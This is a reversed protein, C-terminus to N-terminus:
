PNRFWPKTASLRISASTETLEISPAPSKFTRVGLGQEGGRFGISLCSSTLLSCTKLDIRPYRCTNGEQISGSMLSVCSIPTSLSLVPMFEKGALLLTHNIRKPLNVWLLFHYSLQFLDPKSSIICGLYKDPKSTQAEPNCSIEEMVAAGQGLRHLDVCKMHQDNETANIAKFRLDACAMHPNNEAARRMWARM